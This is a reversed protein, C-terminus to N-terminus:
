LELDLSPQAKPKSQLTYQGHLPKPKWNAKFQKNGQKQALQKFKEFRIKDLYEDVELNIIFDKAFM